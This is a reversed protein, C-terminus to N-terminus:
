QHYQAQQQHSPQRIVLVSIQKSRLPHNLLLSTVTPIRSSGFRKLSIPVLQLLLVLLAITLTLAFSVPSGSQMVLFIRLSLIALIALIFQIQIMLKKGFLYRIEVGVM